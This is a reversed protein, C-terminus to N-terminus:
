NTAFCERLVCLLLSGGATPPIPPPWLTASWRWAMAILTNWGPTAPMLVPWLGSVKADACYDAMPAYGKASERVFLGLMSEGQLRPGMTKPYVFYARFQDGAQPILGTWTGLDPNFVAHMTETSTNVNTLLVGAM